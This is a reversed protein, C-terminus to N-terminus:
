LLDFLYHVLVLSTFLSYWRNSMGTYIIKGMKTNLTTCVNQTWGVIPRSTSVSLSQLLSYLLARPNANLVMILSINRRLDRSSEHM